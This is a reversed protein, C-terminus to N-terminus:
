ILRSLAMQGRPLDEGDFQTAIAVGTDPFRSRTPQLAAIQEQGPLRADMPVRDPLCAWTANKRGSGADNLPKLHVM